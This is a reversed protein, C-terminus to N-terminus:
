GVSVIELGSDLERGTLGLPISDERQRPARFGMRQLHLFLEAAQSTTIGGPTPAPVGNSDDSVSFDLSDHNNAADDRGIPNSSDRLHRLLPHDSETSSNDDEVLPPDVGGREGSM